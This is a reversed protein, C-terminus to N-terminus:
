AAKVTITGTMYSHYKCHFTFTGVTSFTHTWSAGAAIDMSDFVSSTDSTVTHTASDQNVFTVTNNVGIVLTIASPSYNLSTNTATGNPINVTVKVTGGGMGYLAYYGVAILVVVIVVAVVVMMMGRGKKPAEPPSATETQGM